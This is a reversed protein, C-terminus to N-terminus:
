ILIRTAKLGLIQQSLSQDSSAATLVVTRPMSVSALIAAISHRVSLRLEIPDLRTQTGPTAPSEENSPFHAHCACEHSGHALFAVLGHSHSDCETPETM